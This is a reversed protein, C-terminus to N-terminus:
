RRDVFLSQAAVGIPAREDHLVSRALGTGQREVRTVADLLVWEGVPDRHVHITLDTNVYIHEDWDLVRSTGNGFDAAAAVRAIPSPTEGAVLPLALRFWTLAPGGGFASGSADRIDMATRHFGRGDDAQAPRPFRARAATAPPAGPPPGGTDLGAPLAVDGRRLRVARVRVLPREQEDRLEGEVLQFRRGARVVEAAATLPGIPVPGLFEYTLRAVQMGAGPEAQAVHEALLAAPAGGHQAGPDWPGRTHGSAVYRDGERSFIADRVGVDSLGVDSM